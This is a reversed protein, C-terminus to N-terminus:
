NRVDLGWHLKQRLVDFINHTGLNVLQARFPAKSAILEIATSIPSSRGDLTTLFEQNRSEVRISVVASDPIVLPRVALNHPSVPTIVLSHASPLMIPGGCSLSYGTSGTPTAVILGDAWYTTHLVGDICVHITIMASDQKLVAIENLAFNSLLGPSGQPVVQLLTRQDLTYEGKEFRSLAKFAEEPAVTALFGMRGTNIGLVPIEAAGVYNITELLTGDGGISVMLDLHTLDKELPRLTPLADAAGLLLERLSSSVFLQAHQQSLQQLLGVVFPLTSPSFKKGHLAVQM